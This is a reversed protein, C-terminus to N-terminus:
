APHTRPIVLTNAIKHIGRASFFICAWYFFDVAVNPSRLLRNVKKHLNNLKNRRVELIAKEMDREIRQKYLFEAFAGFYENGSGVHM